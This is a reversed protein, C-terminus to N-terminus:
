FIKEIVDSVVEQVAPRAPKFFRVDEWTLERKTSRKVRKGGVQTIESISRGFAIVEKDQPVNYLANIAKKSLQKSM